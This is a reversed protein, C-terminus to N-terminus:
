RLLQLVGQPAQNAQALMSQAAQQLINNKTFNMMEKAMDVDRIRSEAAQLNESSTDINKISHELRNQVAGLKSRESSVKNLSNDLVELAKNANEKTSIDMVYETTGDNDITTTSYSADIVTTGDEALFTDDGSASASIGLADARMDGISIEMNQDENAGIHFTIVQSTGDTGADTASAAFGLDAYISVSLEADAGTEGTSFVLRGDSNAVTIDEIDQSSPTAPTDNYAQIAANAKTQIVAALLDMDSFTGAILSVTFEESVASGGISEFDVTFKFQDNRDLGATSTGNSLGLGVAGNGTVSAITNTSGTADQTLILTNGSTAVSVGITASAGDDLTSALSALGYTGEDLTITVSAANDTIKIVNNAAVGDAVTFSDIDTAIVGIMNGGTISISAGAGKYDAHDGTIKLAGGDFTIDVSNSLAANLKTELSTIFTAGASDYAAAVVAVTVDEVTGDNQTVQITIENTLSTLTIAATNIVLDGTVEFAKASHIEISGSNLTEGVYQAATSAAVIEVDTLTNGTLTAAEADSRELSGDVLKRTNFETTNGIRNLEDALEEVEKQINGRDEDTNTDNSSQVALERMRQLIAQSENLAGEATQILSIGDQANRSAQNLGRIQGRMKESIALGAADDGARNIRMGSSLKEISKAAGNSNLGLQRHTNMAMLNNNIRM